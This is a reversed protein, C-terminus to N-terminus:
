KPFKFLKTDISTNLEIKDFTITQSAGDKVGSIMSYAIYVGNVEQYDSYKTQALKGKMEGSTMESEVMLIAFSEKDVYYYEINAEEKGEVLHTKKDLKLKFCDVGDVKEEGVLELKYGLKAASFLANPFEKSSRKMNETEDKEAKEAKQTMFNTSWLTTGDFVNQFINQGQFNIKTYTKGDNMSVVEIPIKMGGGADVNASMKMNQVTNWKDGGVASYANKVIEDATQAHSLASTLLLAFSIFLHKM